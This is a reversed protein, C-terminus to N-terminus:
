AARIVRQCPSEPGLQPTPHPTSPLLTGWLRAPSGPSLTVGTQPHTWGPSSAGPAPAAVAAATARGAHGAARGLRPAPEPSRQGRADRSPGRAHPTHPGKLSAGDKSRALHLQRWASRRRGEWQATRASSGMPQRLRVEPTSPPEAEKEPRGNAKAPPSNPRQRPRPSWGGGDARRPRAAIRTPGRPRESGQASAAPQASPPARAGLPRQRPGAQAPSPATPGPATLVQGPHRPCRTNLGNAFAGTGRRTGTARDTDAPRLLWPAWGCHCSGSAGNGCPSAAALLWM